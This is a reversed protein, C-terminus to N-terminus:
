IGFQGMIRRGLEGCDRVMERLRWRYVGVGGEVRGVEGELERYIILLM